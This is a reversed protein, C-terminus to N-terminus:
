YRRGECYDIGAEMEKLYTEVFGRDLMTGTLTRFPRGCIRGM